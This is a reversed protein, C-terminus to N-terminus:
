DRADPTTASPPLPKSSRRQPPAPILGLAILPATDAVFLPALPSALARELGQAYYPVWVDHLDRCAVVEVALVNVAGLATRAFTIQGWTDRMSRAQERIAKEISAAVPPYVIFTTAQDRRTAGGWHPGHRHFHGDMTARVIADITADPAGVIAALGRPTVYKVGLTLLSIFENQPADREVLDLLDPLLDNVDRAVIVPEERKADGQPQAARLVRCLRRLKSTLDTLDEDLQHLANKLARLKAEVDRKEDHIERLEELADMAREIKASNGYLLGSLTLKVLQQLRRIAIRTARRYGTFIMALEDRLEDAIQQCMERCTKLVGLRDRLEDITMTPKALTARVDDLRLERGDRLRVTAVYHVEMGDQLTAQILEEVPDLFARDLIQALTVRALKRRRPVHWSFQHQPDLDPEVKLLLAIERRHARAVNAAITVDSLRQMHDAQLLRVHGFPGDGISNPGSIQFTSQIAEAQLAQYQEILMRDRERKDNGVPFLEHCFLRVWVRDSRPAGCLALYEAIAAASNERTRAFNPAEFTIAGILHVECHVNAQTVAVIVEMAASAMVMGGGSGTGGGTGHLLILRVVPMQGGSLKRLLPVIQEALLRQFEPPSVLKRVVATGVGRLQAMGERSGTRPLKAVAAAQEPTGFENVITHIAQDDGLELRFVFRGGLRKIAVKNLEAPADVLMMVTPGQFLEAHEALPLCATGVVIVLNVLEAEPRQRPAFVSLENFNTQRM